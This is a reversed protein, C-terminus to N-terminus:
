IQLRPGSPGLHGRYCTWPIKDDEERPLRLALSAFSKPCACQMDLGDCNCTLLKTLATFMKSSDTMWIQEDLAAIMAAEERFAVAVEFQDARCSVSSQDGCARPMLAEVLQRSMPEEGANRKEGGICSKSLGWISPKSQIRTLVPVACSSSSYRKERMSLTWSQLIASFDRLNHGQSTVVSVIGVCLHLLLCM